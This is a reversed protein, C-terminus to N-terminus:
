TSIIQIVFSRSVLTVVGTVSRAKGTDLDIDGLTVEEGM